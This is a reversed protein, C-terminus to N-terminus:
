LTFSGKTDLTQHHFPFLYPLLPPQSEFIDTRATRIFHPQADPKRLPACSENHPAALLKQLQPFFARCPAPQPKGSAEALLVMTVPGYDLLVGGLTFSTADLGIAKMSEVIGQTQMSSQTAAGDFGGVGHKQIWDEFISQALTAENREVYNVELLVDGCGTDKTPFLNTMERGVMM